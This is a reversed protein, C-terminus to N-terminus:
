KSIDSIFGEKILKQVEESRNINLDYYVTGLGNKSKYLISEIDYFDKIFEYKM